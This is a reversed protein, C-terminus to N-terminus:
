FTWSVGHSKESLWGRGFVSTNGESTDTGLAICKNCFSEVGDKVSYEYHKVEM